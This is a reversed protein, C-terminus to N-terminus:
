ANHRHRSSLRQPDDRNPGHAFPRQDRRVLDGDNRRKLSAVDRDIRQLVAPGGTFPAQVDYAETGKIQNSGIGADVVAVGNPWRESFRRQLINPWRDDGNLTSNTGDTVSDGLCVVLPTDEPMQMDVASLFFWTTSSMPFNQESDEGGHPGAQPLSVYSTQLAKAHWTM